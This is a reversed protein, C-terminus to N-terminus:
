VGYEVDEVPAPCDRVAAQDEGFYEALIYAAEKMQTYYSDIKGEFFHYIVMVPIAVTLGAATTILAEWIGGALVSADVDGGLEQIKMFAAMMGTVTGLLGLLPSVHAIIGLGRLPGNLRRLEESGVRSLIDEREGASKQRLRLGAKMLRAVPGGAKTCVTEAETVANRGLLGEIQGMWNNMRDRNRFFYYGRELTIALAVVSCLLIPVMVPGGKIILDYFTM